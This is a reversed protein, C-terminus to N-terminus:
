YRLSDDEYDDEPSRVYPTFYGNSATDETKSKPQYVNLNPLHVHPLAPYEYVLSDPREYVPSPPKESSIVDNNIAHQFRLVQIPRQHRALSPQSNSSCPYESHGLEELVTSPNEYAEQYLFKQNLMQIFITVKVLNEHLM